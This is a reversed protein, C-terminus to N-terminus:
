QDLANLLKEAEEVSIKKEQLMRLVMMREEDSMKSKISDSKREPEDYSFGVVKTKRDHDFIKHKRHRNSLDIKIGAVESAKEVKRVAEEVSDSVANMSDRFTREQDIGFDQWGEITKEILGEFERPASEQDTVTISDGAEMRITAGGEGLPLSVVGEEWDGEQGCAHVRINEGGSLMELQANVRDGVYLTVDGGARITMTPLNEMSSSIDVDGGASLDISGSIDILSADGGVARSSLAIVGEGDLDGGVRAIELTGTIKKFRTDGGVTEISAGGLQELTLDGGIKGVIVRNALRSVSLDGSVKEVTVTATEPILLRCDTTAKIELGENHESIRLSEGHTVIATLYKEQTGEISLDDSARIAIKANEKVPITMQKM